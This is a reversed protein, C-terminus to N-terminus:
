ILKSLGARLGRQKQIHCLTAVVMWAIFCPLIVDFVQRGGGVWSEDCFIWDVRLCILNHSATKVQRCLGLADAETFQMSIHVGNPDQLCEFGRDTRTYGDKFTQYPM